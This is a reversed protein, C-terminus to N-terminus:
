KAMVERIPEELIVCGMNKVKTHIIIKMQKQENMPNSHCLPSKIGRYALTLSHSVMATYSGRKTPSAGM